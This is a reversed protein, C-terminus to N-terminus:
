LGGENVNMKERDHREEKKPEEEGEKWIEVGDRNKDKSKRREVDAKM